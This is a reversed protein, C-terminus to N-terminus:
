TQDISTLRRLRVRHLAVEARGVAPTVEIVAFPGADVSAGAPTTVASIRDDLNVPDGAGLFLEPEPAGAGQMRCAVGTATATFGTPAPQGYTDVATATPTSVTCRHILGRIM